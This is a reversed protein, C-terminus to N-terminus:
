IHIQLLFYTKTISMHTLYNNADSFSLLYFINRKCLLVCKLQDSIKM